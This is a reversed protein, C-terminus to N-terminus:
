NRCDETLAFDAQLSGVMVTFEGAEALRRNDRDVFALEGPSLSFHLRRSEGPALNIKDLARLRKVPPAIRAYHDSVYLQVVEQGARTGSNRVTVAVDLRDSCGLRANAVSLDEYAFTTYALGHGFPYLRSFAYAESHRHDYTMLANPGVPYTYPLRGSPEAAGTLVAALAAGGESGPLPALLVATMQETIDELTRPRGEVLVLVVPTGSAALRRALDLQPRPLTLDDLNGFIEAYTEEGLCLVIVDAEGARAVAEEPAAAALVAAEGLRARLAQLISQGEAAFGSDTECGQWTASWGGHLMALSDAAPGTVLIRSGHVLPLINRDNKLLVLSQTAAERALSRAAPPALPPPPDPALGGDEFLGLEVKLRLIRRVADDIRAEPVRGQRVLAALQDPFRHDFPVMVLDVGANVALAVADDLTAAVHHHNHLYEVASWDSVVVGAFGLEDKLLGQVLHRDGHVPVGSIDSLNLMVSEAGAGIGAVFPPMCLERLSHEALEASSRDRGSQPLAYGAFHKLCSAVRAESGDGGHYGTVTAATLQAALLPDEGFSEYFRAHVPNRGPEAAPSFLWPVSVARAEAATIAAARRVLAPNWTAALGIQHPFITAGYVFHMGHLADLGYLLPIRLRTEEMALRQMEAIITRWHEASFAHSGINFVSGAGHTVVVRRLRQRDLEHPEAPNYPLDGQSVANLTIMAMQGTKEELCMRGLLEEIHVSALAPRLALCFLLLGLLLSPLIKQSQTNM